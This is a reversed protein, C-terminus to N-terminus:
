RSPGPGGHDSSSVPGPAEGPPEEDDYLGGLTWRTYNNRHIEEAEDDTLDGMEVRHEIEQTEQQLCDPCIGCGVPSGDVFEPECPEVQQTM